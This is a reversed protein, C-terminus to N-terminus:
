NFTLCSPANPSTPGDVTQDYRERLAQHARQKDTQYEPPDYEEAHCVWTHGIWYRPNWRSTRRWNPTYGWAPAKSEEMFKEVVKKSWAKTAFETLTNSV